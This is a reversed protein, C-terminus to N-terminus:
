QGFGWEMVLIGPGYPTRANLNGSDSSAGGGGGYNGGAADRVGGAGSTAAAGTDSDTFSMGAGRAGATVGSAAGGNGATGAAGGGAYQSPAGGSYRVAGKGSNAKGGFGGTEASLLVASGRKLTALQDTPAVNNVTLTEGPTVQIVDQSLAGGFGGSDQRASGNGFDYESIGQGGAAYLTARAYTIGDPVVISQGNGSYSKTRIAVNRARGGLGAIGPLM